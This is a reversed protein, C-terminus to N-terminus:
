NMGLDKAGETWISKNQWFQIGNIEQIEAILSSKLNKVKDKSFSRNTESIQYKRRAHYFIRLIKL